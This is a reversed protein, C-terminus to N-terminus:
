VCACVCMCVCLCMYIDYVLFFINLLFFNNLNLNKNRVKISLIQIKNQKKQNEFLQNITSYIFIIDKVSLKFELSGPDADLFENEDEVDFNENEFGNEIFNKSFTAIPSIKLIISKTRISSNEFTNKSPKSAWKTFDMFPTLLSLNSLIKTKGPMVTLETKVSINCPNIM